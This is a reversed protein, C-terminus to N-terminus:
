HTAVPARRLETVSTRRYSGSLVRSHDRLWDWFRTGRLTDLVVEQYGPRPRIEFCSNLIAQSPEHLVCFAPVRFIDPVAIRTRCDTPSKADIFQYWFDPARRIAARLRPRAALQLRHHELYGRVGPATSLDDQVWQNGKPIYPWIIRNSSPEDCVSGVERGRLFARLRDSELHWGAVTGEDVLFVNDAGTAVGTTVFAIDALVRAQPMSAGRADSGISDKVLRLVGAEVSAKPTFVSNPLRDVGWSGSEALLDRLPQAAPQYLVGASCILALIGGDELLRIAKEIFLYSLDFSGRATSFLSRLRAREAARLDHVRVWPPNGIIVQYQESEDLALVDGVRIDWDGKPRGFRETLRQKATGVRVRDIEIGTLIEALADARALRPNQAQLAHGAAELFVGDGCGIDLVRPEGSLMALSPRVIDSAAELRTFVDRRMELIKRSIVPHLLITYPHWHHNISQAIAVM